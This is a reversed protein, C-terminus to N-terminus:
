EMDAGCIASVAIVLGAYLLKWFLERLDKFVM